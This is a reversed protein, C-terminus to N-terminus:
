TVKLRRLELLFLNTMTSKLTKKYKFLSWGTCSTIFLIYFVALCTCLVPWLLVIIGDILKEFADFSGNSAIYVIIARLAAVVYAGNARQQM